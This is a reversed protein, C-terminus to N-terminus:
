RTGTAVIINATPNVVKGNYFQRFGEIVESIAQERDIAPLGDFVPRFPAAVDYIHQWLEEPSGPWPLDVQRAEEYVDRFGAAKLDQSLSGTKEYKFPSPAGPPEPPVDVRKLFPGLANLFFPNKELEGFAIFVVRGRPKLVRYIEKLAQIGDAFYMVGWRSTVLDFLQDPFPLDHADAPQYSLNSLGAARANKENAALMKPNLDSVTVHGNPGIVRALSVAPQGPGGAVDLVQMGAEPLAYKLLLDTAAQTQITHQPYWRIWAAVTAEDMWEQRVMEKFQEVQSDITTM